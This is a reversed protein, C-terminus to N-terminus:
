VPFNMQKVLKKFREEEHLIEWDSSSKLNPMLLDREKHAKELWTLAHDKDGAYAYLRAIWVPQIYSQKEKVELLEALLKIAGQYDSKKFGHQLTDTFNHKGMASFFSSAAEIAEEYERKQHHCIWLYRHVFPFDSELQVIEKLQVLAEDFRQLYLLQGVYFCQTFTNLPDLELGLEAESMAEDGRGMSRLFSSYFLRVDAKNPNLEIARKFEREAGEWDWDFFYLCRALVDHAEELTDDKEIAELALSKARPMLEGPPTTGWYAKAISVMAIGTQALSNEPDKNLSLSFYDLAKQVNAPSLKYWHFRGKLYADYSEPNVTHVRKLNQKEKQTLKIKIEGAIAQAVESQLFLIDKLDRDYSEAWIHADTAVNILQATIRVKKGVRLVSGEVMADVNLERAIEHLSKETAKYHMASNRSIIRLSHIKALYTILTETMGDVFYEQGPDNSYNILPLVVISEIPKDVPEAASEVLKKLNQLIDKMQEYRDSRDKALMKEVIQELEAPVHSNLRGVPEPEENLIAYILASEYAERFPRLGTLLEYLVVGFSFIDTGADIEKGEIQEPSMYALTGVMDSNPILDVSKKIEALGFDLVKIQENKTAMINASKIDRHIIGKEHAAQLAEAIQVAFRIVREISLQENNITLQGITQGEVYEMVIFPNKKQDQVEYIVCVNPHNIAAVARAEQLFRSKDTENVTIGSPLFKIAVQRKLKTDEALYVEGMGGRGLEELIKYQLITKGIM